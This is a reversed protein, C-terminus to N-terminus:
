WVPQEGYLSLQGGLHLIAPAQFRLCGPGHSLLVQRLTDKWFAGPKMRIQPQSGGGQVYFNFFFFFDEPYIYLGQLCHGGRFM